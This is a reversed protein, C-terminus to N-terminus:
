YVFGGEWIRRKKGFLFIMYDEGPSVYVDAEYRNTNISDSLRVPEEFEGDIFRSSYIDFNNKRKECADKNSAFYLNNMSSISIYYENKQSNIVAGANIPQSWKNGIKQSYWIDIDNITDMENIPMDSIYYLRDEELSLFPDNYSSKHHSLITKPKTWAGDKLKTYRIESKGNVNVGYYFEKGDKTFVSGFESEDEHSIFGPAFVRPQISPKEKEIYSLPSNCGAIIFCLLLIIHKHNLQIM